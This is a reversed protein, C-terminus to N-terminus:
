ALISSRAGTTLDMHDLPVVKTKKWFKFSVFLICFVPIGIYGTIFETYNFAGYTSPSPIFVTFNKTFIILITFALSGYSGYLGLPANYPMVSNPINQRRQGRKFQIHTFLICAWTIMGFITVLNVLYRFVTRSSNSVNLFGLCCGLCGMAIGALPVGRSNTYQFVRPAYGRKSLGYLTRSVIYLDSNATGIVFLLICANLITPLVKIGAVRIAATYPSASAGTKAGLAFVLEPSDYPLVMGLFFVSLCYFGAIRYFTLKTARPISKEPDRAEGATVGVLETGLYAFAATVMSSWFAVFRGTPGDPMGRYSRFAGPDTWYRFGTRDHNPGGGVSLVFCLIILGIFVLVKVMSLWYEVEGFIGIGIYNILAILVLFVAIWVGPNVREAPVWEQIVLAAATLQNPSTFIYKLLYCWGAM